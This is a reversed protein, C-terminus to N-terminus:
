GVAKEFRRKAEARLDTPQCCVVDELTDRIVKHIGGFVRRVPADTEVCRYRPGELAEIYKLADLAIDEREEPTSIGLRKIMERARETTESM